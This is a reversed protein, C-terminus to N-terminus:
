VLLDVAIGVLLFSVREFNNLECINMEVKVINATSRVCAIHDDTASCNITVRSILRKLSARHSRVATVHGYIDQSRHTFIYILVYLGINNKPSSINSRM